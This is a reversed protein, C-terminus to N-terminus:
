ASASPAPLCRLASSRSWDKPRGSYPVSEKADEKADARLLTAEFSLALAVATLRRSSGTQGPAPIRRRGTHDAAGSPGVTRAESEQAYRSGPLRIRPLPPAVPNPDTLFAQNAVSM